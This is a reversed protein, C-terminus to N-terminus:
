TTLGAGVGENFNNVFKGSVRTLNTVKEKWDIFAQYDPLQDLELEYAGSLQDTHKEVDEQLYEFLERERGTTEALYFGYVYSFELVRRCVLLQETAEHLFKTDASRVGFRQLIDAEKAICEARQRDAVKRANHHSEYRHYFFMYKELETKAHEREKDEAKAESNKDYKNCKYYGGTASGHDKWNGRCLWCFEYGCSATTCTMHMCGGNKEIPSRCKPCKKTNAALWTLNESEDSAKALWKEIDVCTAPTHDGIEADACRYCFVAGCDCVIPDRRNAREVRVARKCGPAPCWKTKPNSDVFSRRLFLQYREYAKKSLHTNFADDHVLANCKPFPCRTSTVTHASELATMLYQQWCDNCYRHGCGLAYSNKSSCNEMCIPCEMKKRSHKKTSVLDGSSIGAAALVKESDEMWRNILKEKNWENARLLMAAITESPLGCLEQAAKTQTESEKAIQSEEIIEYSRSRMPNTSSTTFDEFELQDDDFDEDDDYFGYDDSGMSNQLDISNLSHELSNSADHSVKLKKKKESM